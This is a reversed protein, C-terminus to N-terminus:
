LVMEQCWSGHEAQNSQGQMELVYSHSAIVNNEDMGIAGARSVITCSAQNLSPRITAQVPIGEIFGSDIEAVHFVLNGASRISTGYSM